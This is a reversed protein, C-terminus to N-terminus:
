QDKGCKFALPVASKGEDDKKIQRTVYSKAGCFCLGSGWFCLMEWALAWLVNSRGYPSMGPYGMTLSSTTGSGPVDKERQIQEGQQGAKGLCFVRDGEQMLLKELDM